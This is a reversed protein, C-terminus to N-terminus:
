RVCHLEFIVEVVAAVEFKILFWIILVEATQKHPKEPGSIELIISYIIPHQQRRGRHTM